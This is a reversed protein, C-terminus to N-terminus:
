VDFLLWNGRELFRRQFPYGTRFWSSWFWSGTPRCMGTYTIYSNWPGTTSFVLSWLANQHVIRREIQKFESCIRSAFARNKNSMISLIVKRKITCYYEVTVIFNLQLVLRYCSTEVRFCKVYNNQVGTHCRLVPMGKRLSTANSYHVCVHSFISM